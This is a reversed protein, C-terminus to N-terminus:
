RIQTWLGWPWFICPLADKNRLILTKRTRRYPKQNPLYIYIYIFSESMSQSFIIYKITSLKRNFLIRDHIMQHLLVTLPDQIRAFNVHIQQFPFFMLCIHLNKISNIKNLELSLGERQSYM